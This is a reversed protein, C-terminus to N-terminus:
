IHKKFVIVALNNYALPNYLGFLKTIQPNQKFIGRTIKTKM